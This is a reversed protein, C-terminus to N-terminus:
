RSRTPRLFCPFFVDFLLLYRSLHSLVDGEAGLDDPLESGGKIKHFLGAPSYKLLNTLLNLRGRHPMALFSFGRHPSSIVTFACSALGLIINQIGAIVNFILLIEPSVGFHTTFCVKLLLPFSLIWLQFCQNM